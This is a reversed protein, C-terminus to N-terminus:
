PNRKNLYPCDGAHDGPRCDPFNPLTQTKSPYFTQTRSPYMDILLLAVILLGIIWVVIILPKYSKKSM